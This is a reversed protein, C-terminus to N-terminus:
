KYALAYDRPGGEGRHYSVALSFDILRQLASEDVAEKLDFPVPIIPVAGSISKARESLRM